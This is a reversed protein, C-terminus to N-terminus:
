KIHLAFCAHPNGDLAYKVTFEHPLYIRFANGLQKRIWEREGKWKAEDKDAAENVAQWAKMYLEVSKEHDKKLGNFGRLHYYALKRLAEPHNQDAAKRLWFIELKYDKKPYGYKLSGIYYWWALHVQDDANGEEASAKVKDFAAKVNEPANQDAGMLSLSLYLSVAILSKLNM